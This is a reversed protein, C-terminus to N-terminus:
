KHSADTANEDIRYMTMWIGQGLGDWVRHGRRSAGDGASRRFAVHRRRSSVFRPGNGRVHAEDCGNVEGCLDGDGGDGDGKGDGDGDDDGDGGKIAGRRKMMSCLIPTPGGGEDEEADRATGVVCWGPRAGETALRLCELAFALALALALVDRQPCELLCDSSTAVSDPLHTRPSLSLALAVRGLIWMPDNPEKGRQSWGWGVARVL